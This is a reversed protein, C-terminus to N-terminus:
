KIVMEMYHETGGSNNPETPYWATCSMPEGTVWAWGGDPEKSGKPQYGGLWVQYAGPLARVIDWEKQSTITALHGGAAEAAKKADDWSISDKTKVIKYSSAGGVEKELVYGKVSGHKPPIDNWGVPSLKECNDTACGIISTSAHGLTVGGYSNIHGKVVKGSSGLDADTSFSASGDAKVIQGQSKNLGTMANSPIPDEDAGSWHSAAADCSSFNRTGALLTSPRAMDAGQILVYSTATAPIFWNAKVNYSTWNKQAEENAAERDADCPSVLIKATQLESKMAATSFIPGLEARYNSGFHHSVQRPTLQWPLRGGNDHAFGMFAKGIQALNNVCKVRAAKAKARALAPLLMAALIGIIAIVVLLEILTFARLRPSHSKKM